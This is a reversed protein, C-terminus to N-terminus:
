YVAIFRVAYIFALFHAVNIFAIFRVVIVLAIFRVIISIVSYTGLLAIFACCETVGPSHFLMCAIFQVFSLQVRYFTPQRM